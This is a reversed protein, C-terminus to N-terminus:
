GPLGPVGHQMKNTIRGRKHDQHPGKHLREIVTALCLRLEEAALSLCPFAERRLCLLGGRILRLKDLGSLPLNAEATFQCVEVDAVLFGYGVGLLCPLLQHFDKIMRALVLFLGLLYPLLAVSQCQNNLLEPRAELGDTALM